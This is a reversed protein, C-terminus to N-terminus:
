RRLLTLTRDVEHMTVLTQFVVRRADEWLVDDHERAAGHEQRQVLDQVCGWYQLLGDLFSFVTQGLPAKVAEIVARVRAVVHAKNADAAEVGFKQVLGTAFEQMAERCLHGIETSRSSTQKAWLVKEADLWKEYAAPYRAQFERSQIYSAMENEVAEAPKDSDLRIEEYVQFGLTSVDFNLQHEGYYRVALLGLDVMEEIDGIYVSVRRDPLGRHMVGGLTEGMCPHSAMFVEKDPTNRSAEVFSCLLEAQDKQIIM